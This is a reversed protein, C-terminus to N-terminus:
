KHVKTGDPKSGLLNVCVIGVCVLALALLTNFRLAQDAERLIVASLIVGFVPTLFGYISVASVSTRSILLTWLSYALASAFALYLLVFVSVASPIVVRGGGIFGIACLCLGGLLFQWGTLVVSRETRSYVRALCSAVGASLGAMLMSGEGKLTFGGGEGTLNMALISAFGLACGLLKGPHPKEQRFLFCALLIAWLSSMGSFIASHVGSSHAVGIYFFTYQSVTQFLSHVLVHGWSSPKPVSLRRTALSDYLIVMVGSLSFRMGAFLILQWTDGSDISFMENGIKIMPTASGWLFCAFASILAVILPHALRSKRSETM